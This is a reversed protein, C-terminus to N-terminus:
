KKREKGGKRSRATPKREGRARGLGENLCIYENILKELRAMRAINAPDSLDATNIAAGVTQRERGAAALLKKLRNRRAEMLSVLSSLAPEVGETLKSFEADDGCGRSHERMIGRVKILNEMEQVSLNNRAYRM